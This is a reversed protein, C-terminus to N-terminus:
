LCIHNNLAKEITQSSIGIYRQTTAPSSHQLLKQVLVIDYENNNYISTAFFKRFSHTSVKELGLYDCVYKLHMQVQRETIDFIRENDAINNEKCYSRIYEVVELPVTFTRVKKTKQEVIDLHYRGSEYVIDNLTLVMIDSIRIGLNAELRLATAIKHNPRHNLFGNELVELIERYENETIARAM